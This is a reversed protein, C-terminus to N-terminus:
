VLIIYLCSMGLFNQKINFKNPMLFIVKIQFTLTFTLVTCFHWRSYIAPFKLSTWLFSFNQLVFFHEVQTIKIQQYTKFSWNKFDPLNGEKPFNYADLFTLLCILNGYCARKTGTWVPLKALFEKWISKILFYLIYM